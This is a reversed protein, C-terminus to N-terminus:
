VDCIQVAQRLSKMPDHTPLFEHAVFGRFSSAAIAKCVAGYNLEQTDDIEHRGPVGGTHFHGIYRIDEQITTCVDGETFKRKHM